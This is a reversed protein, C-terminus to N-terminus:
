YNQMCRKLLFCCYNSMNIDMIKIVSGEVIICAVVYVVSGYKTQFWVSFVEVLHTHDKVNSVVTKSKTNADTLSTQNSSRIVSICKLYM